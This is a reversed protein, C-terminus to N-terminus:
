SSIQGHKYRASKLSKRRVKEDSLEAKVNETPYVGNGQNLIKVNKEKEYSTHHAHIRESSM